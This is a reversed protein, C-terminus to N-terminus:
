TFELARCREGISKFLDLHQKHLKLYYKRGRKILKGAVQYFRWRITSIQQKSCEPPLLHAKLIMSLNYALCGIYFYLANANKSGSPMYKLGFGLKLEKIRNESTEGRQNYWNMVDSASYLVQSKNSIIVHYIYSDGLLDHRVLRRKVILRFQHNSNEMEHEVESIEGDGFEQWSSPAISAIAKKTPNNLIGGIAYDLGNDHCYNIIKDQCSASDARFLKIEKGRPMAKICERMFEYNRTSPSINGSRFRSGVIMGNEALHGIIPMYGKNKKYTYLAERKNAIIESADIDLTYESRSEQALAQALTRNNIKKLYALGRGRGYRRLWSGIAATTPVKALGILQKLTHDSEIQRVDEIHKGGGHQMMILPLVYSSALYSNNSGPKGFTQDLQKPLNLKNILDGLLVLGSHATLSDKTIELKFSIPNKTKNMRTPNIPNNKVRQTFDCIYSLGM